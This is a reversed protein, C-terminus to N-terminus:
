RPHHLAALGVWGPKDAWPGFPLSLCLGARGAKRPRWKSLSCRRGGETAEVGVWCQGTGSPALAGLAQGGLNRGPEQTGSVRPVQSAASYSRLFLAIGGGDGCPCRQTGEPSVQPWRMGSCWSYEFIQLFCKEILVLMNLFIFLLYFWCMRPCRPPEM